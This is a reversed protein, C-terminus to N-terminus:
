AAQRAYYEWITPYFERVYWHLDERVGTDDPTRGAALPLWYTFFLVRLLERQQEMRPHLSVVRTMLTLFKDLKELESYEDTTITAAAQPDRRKKLVPEVKRYANQCGLWARVEKM